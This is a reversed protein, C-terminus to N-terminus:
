KTPTRLKLLKIYQEESLQSHKECWVQDTGIIGDITVETLSCGCDAKFGKADTMEM